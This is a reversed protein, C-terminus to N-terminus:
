LGLINIVTITAKNHQCFFGIINRNLIDHTEESEPKVLFDAPGGIRLTTHLCLPEERLVSDKGVINLLEAYFDM